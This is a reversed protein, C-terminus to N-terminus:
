EELKNDVIVIIEKAIEDTDEKIVNETMTIVLIGFEKIKL